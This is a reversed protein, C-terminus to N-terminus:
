RADINYKLTLFSSRLGLLSDVVVTGFTYPNEAHVSRKEIGSRGGPCSAMLLPLVKSIELGSLQVAGRTGLGDGDIFEKKENKWVAISVFVAATVAAGFHAILDVSRTLKLANQLSLALKAFYYYRM